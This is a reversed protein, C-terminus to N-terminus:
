RHGQPRQRRWPAPKPPRSVRLEISTSRGPESACHLSAGLAEARRRMGPLGSGRHASAPTEEAMGCGDDEVQLRLADADFAIRLAIHTAVAHQVANAIAEQAIHFIQGETSDPLPWPSGSCAFEIKCDPAEYSAALERLGAVLGGQELVIPRLAFVARRAEEISERFRRDIRDLLSELEEPADQPIRRLAQLQMAIGAMHQALGDHLDGAIRNREEALVARATALHVRSRHLFWVIFAVAALSVLAFWTTQYYFPRIDLVLLAEPGISASVGHAAAVRFRYKGPPLNTYFATRRAGAEVWDHDFGELLYRFSLRHADPPGTATFRIELNQVGADLTLPGREGVSLERLDGHNVALSEIMTRIAYTAAPGAGPDIRALGGPTPFWLSGDPLSAASNHFGGNCEAQKMGDARDFRTAAIRALRGEVLEEIEGKAVRFLGQMGCMWLMGKGDDLISLVIDEPLGHEKGIARFRGDAYRVLGSGLTGFWLTGDEDELMTLFHKSPVGEEAGLRELRGDRLRSLGYGFSGIWLTGNRDEHLTRVSADHLEPYQELRDASDGELYLLGAGTTGVWVRGSRDEHLAWVQHISIGEAVAVARWRGAQLRDVGASTGAWLRGNRDELLAGIRDSRLGDQTTYTEFRGNAYRSLGAGNTGVWLTAARDRYIAAIGDHPLGDRRTYTTIPVDRLRSIGAGVSAIWLSGQRDRMLRNISDHSGDAERLREVREGVIRFLGDGHSGAWVADNADVWVAILHPAHDLGLDQAQLEQGLPRRYLGLHSAIWLTGRSDFALNRARMLEPGDLEHRLEGSSPELSFVGTDRVSMWVRGDPGQTLGGVWKKPLTALLHLHPEPEARVQGLGELTGVWLGGSRDVFLDAVVLPDRRGPVDYAIARNGELRYLGDDTGVWLSGRLDVVLANVSESRLGSLTSRDFVRHRVGDFRLLGYHTGFWLYGNADQAIAVSGKAPLVDAPWSDLLYHHLPKHLDPSPGAGDPQAEAAGSWVCLASLLALAFCLFRDTM